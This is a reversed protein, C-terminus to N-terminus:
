YAFLWTDRPIKLNYNSGSAYPPVKLYPIFISGCITKEIEYGAYVFIIREGSMMLQKIQSGTIRPVKPYRNWGQWNTPIKGANAISFSGFIILLIIIYFKYKFMPMDM